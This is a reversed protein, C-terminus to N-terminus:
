FSFILQFDLIRLLIDVQQAFAAAEIAAAALSSSQSSAPAGSGPGLVSKAYAVRLIQGNKEFATGNTAELAKTADEVQFAHFINNLMLISLLTIVACDMRLTRLHSEIETLRVLLSSKTQRKANFLMSFESCNCNNRPDTQKQCECSPIVFSFLSDTLLKHMHPLFAIFYIFVGFLFTCIRIGKVCTYIQRQCSPSGAFLSIYKM